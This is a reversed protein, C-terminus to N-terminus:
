RMSHEAVTNPHTNGPLLLAERQGQGPRVAGRRWRHALQRLTPTTSVYSTLHGALAVGPAYFDEMHCASEQTEAVQRDGEVPLVAPLQLDRELMRVHLVRDLGAADPEAPAARGRATPEHEEPLDDRM